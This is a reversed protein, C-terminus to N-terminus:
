KYDIDQRHIAHLSHIESYIKVLDKYESYIFNDKRCMTYISTIMFFVIYNSCRYMAHITLINDIYPM